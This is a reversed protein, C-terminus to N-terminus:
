GNRARWQLVTMAVTAHHGRSQAPEFGSAALADAAARHGVAHRAWIRRFGWGGPGFARDLVADNLERAYGRGQATPLLMVGLEVNGPDAPEGLLALLGVGAGSWRETVACRQRVCAPDLNLRCAAAFQRSAAGPALPEAIHAMVGPHTYLACYLAEDGARLPRVCLRASEFSAM